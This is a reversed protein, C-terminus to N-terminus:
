GEVDVAPAPSATEADRLYQLGLEVLATRDIDAEIIRSQLKDRVLEALSARRGPGSVGISRVVEPRRTDLHFHLARRKYERLAKHDLDRAIHRPLDRVVLRVIKDDIGGPCKDVATQVRADIESVTLGRAWISDLEVLPRSPPIRHFRYTGLDLDFEVFGKGIGRQEEEWRDGWPNVSTYDISGSYLANPAVETFVHYHGLAVYTWRSAGLEDQSVEIAARDIISVFEPIIGRVAGHMLLVNYRASPDPTLAPLAGPVDPVALVSLEHETFSLRQPEKDVVRVGAQQFLRLIGGTETSRPTDHNGGIAIVSTDPLARTLRVLQQFAHLIAPNTPRVNHFVDGAIVVVDPALDIVKGVVYEFSRAVDAERQNIGGPTLRQYQRFGLHLDSFHILRL